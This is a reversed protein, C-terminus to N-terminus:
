PLKEFLHFILKGILLQYTGIYVLNDADPIDHGTGYTYIIRTELAAVADDVLAWICPTDNQTQVCLIKSDVPLDIFQNKITELSYKYITKM